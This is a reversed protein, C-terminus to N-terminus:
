KKELSANLEEQLGKVWAYDMFDLDGVNQNAKVGLVFEAKLM